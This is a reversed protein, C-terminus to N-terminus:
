DNGIREMKDLSENWGQTCEKQMERPIGKHVLKLKTKEGIEDLTVTVLLELPWEGPMNHSSASIINGKEDSFSDTFVLKEQPVIEKFTGTSWYEEGKPSLMCHLYKGGKKLDVSSSPCTFEKPGWWKKYFEPETWAQWAKKIPLDLTRDIVIEDSIDQATQKAAPKSQTKTEM